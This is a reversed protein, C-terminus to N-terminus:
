ENGTLTRGVSWFCVRKGTDALGRAITWAWHEYHPDSPFPTETQIPSESLSVRHAIDIAWLRGVAGRKQGSEVVGVVPVPDLGGPVRMTGDWVAWAYGGGGVPVVHVDYTKTLRPVLQAIHSYCDRSILAWPLNYWNRRHDRAARSKAPSLMMPGLFRMEVGFSQALETQPTPNKCNVYSVVSLGTQQGAYGVIAHSNSYSVGVNIVGVCGRSKLTEFWPLVGRLKGSPLDDNCLDERVVDIGDYSEVVMPNLVWM